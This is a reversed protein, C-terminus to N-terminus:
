ELALEKKPCLGCLACPNAFNKQLHGSLLYEQSELGTAVVLSQWQLTFAAMSICLCILTTDWYFKILPVSPPGMHYTETSSKNLKIDERKLIGVRVRLPIYPDSEEERERQREKKNHKKKKFCLGLSAKCEDEVRLRV